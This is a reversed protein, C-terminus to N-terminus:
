REISQWEGAMQQAEVVQAPNMHQTVNKVFYNM